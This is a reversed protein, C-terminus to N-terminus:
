TNYIVLVINMKVNSDFSVKQDIFNSKADIIM